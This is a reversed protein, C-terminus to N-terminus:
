NSNIKYRVNNLGKEKLPEGGQCYLSQNKKVSPQKGKQVAMRTSCGSNVTPHVLQM